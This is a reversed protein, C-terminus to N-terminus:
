YEDFLVRLESYITNNSEKFGYKPQLKRLEWASTWRQDFARQLQQMPIAAILQELLKQRKQRTPKKPKKPKKPKGKNGKSQMYYSVHVQTFEKQTTAVDSRVPVAYVAGPRGHSYRDHPVGDQGKTNVGTRLHFKARQIAGTELQEAYVTNYLGHALLIAGDREFYKPNYHAAARPRTGLLDEFCQGVKWLGNPLLKDVSEQLADPSPNLLSRSTDIRTFQSFRTGAEDSAM